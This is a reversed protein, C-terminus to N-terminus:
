NKVIFNKDRDEKVLKAVRDMAWDWSVAEVRVLRISPIGSLPATDAGQHLRAVGRGKPLAHRPQDSPRSDGEIHSISSKANKAKDGLSYM